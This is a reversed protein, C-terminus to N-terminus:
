IIEPLVKLYIQILQSPSFGAKTYAGIDNEGKTADPSM